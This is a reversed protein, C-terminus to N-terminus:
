CEILMKRTNSFLHRAWVGLTARMPRQAPQGRTCEPYTHFTVRLAIYGQLWVFILLVVNKWTFIASKPRDESREGPAQYERNPLLHRSQQSYDEM